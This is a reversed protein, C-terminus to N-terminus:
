AVEVGALVREGDLVTRGSVVAEGAVRVVGRVEVFDGLDAHGTVVSRDGVVSDDRIRAYGSVLARDTVKARDLVRAASCVVADGSVEAHDSIVAHDLVCARESVCARDAVVAYGAVIADDKVIARDLVRASDIVHANGLVRADPDVWATADVTATSAVLGGVSGDPNTHPSMAVPADDFGRLADAVGTAGPGPRARGLVLRFTDGEVEVSSTEYSRGLLTELHLKWAADDWFASEDADRSDDGLATEIEIVVDDLVSADLAVIRGAREDPEVPVVDTLEDLVEDDVLEINEAEPRSTPAFQGGTPTGAPRRNPRFDKSV